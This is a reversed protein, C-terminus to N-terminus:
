GRRAGVVREARGDVLQGGDLGYCRGPMRLGLLGMVGGQVPGCGDFLQQMRALIRRRSGVRGVGRLVIALGDGRAGVVVASPRPSQGFLAVRVLVHAGGVVMGMVLLLLVAGKCSRGHFGRLLAGVSGM